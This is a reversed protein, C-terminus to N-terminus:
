HSFVVVVTMTFYLILFSGWGQSPMQKVSDTLVELTDPHLLLEPSPIDATLAWFHSLKHINAGIFPCGSKALYQVTDHFFFGLALTSIM